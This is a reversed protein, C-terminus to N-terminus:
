FSTSMPLCSERHRKNPRQSMMGNQPHNKGCLSKIKEDVEPVIGTSVQAVISKRFEVSGKELIAILRRYDAKGAFHSQKEAARKALYYTFWVNFTGDAFIRATSNEEAQQAEAWSDTFIHAVRECNNVQGLLLNVIQDEM